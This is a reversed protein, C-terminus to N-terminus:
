LMGLPNQQKETLTELKYGFGYVPVLQFGQEPKLGLKNRVRSIHTDLTRSPLDTDRGWVNEQIHGRSLSKGLNRFLLLALEFEKQTLEVRQNKHTITGLKAHFEFGEIHVTNPTQTEPHSRRLLANIRAVLESRRIPKAVFDDAGAQLANVVIDEQNNASIVLLPVPLHLTDRVWHLTQLGSHDPLNWELVILDFSDRYLGTQFSKWSSFVHCKHGASEILWRLMDSQTIDDELIAIRM